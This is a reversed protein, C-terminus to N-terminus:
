KEVTILEDLDLMMMKIDAWQERLWPGKELHLPHARFEAFTEKSEFTNMVTFDYTIGEVRLIDKGIESHLIAPINEAFEKFIAMCADLKEYDKLKYFGISKVMSEGERGCRPM